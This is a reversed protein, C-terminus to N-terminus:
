CHKLAWTHILHLHYISKTDSTVLNATEMFVNNINTTTYDLNPSVEIKIFNDNYSCTISYICKRSMSHLLYLSQTLTIITCLEACNLKLRCNNLPTDYCYGLTYSYRYRTLLIWQIFTFIQLKWKLAHKMSHNALYDVVVMCDCFCFWIKGAHYRTPFLICKTHICIVDQM